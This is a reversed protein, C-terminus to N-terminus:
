CEGELSKAAVLFLSYYPWVQATPVGLYLLSGLLTPLFLGFFGATALGGWGNKGGEDGSCTWIQPPFRTFPAIPHLRIAPYSYPETNEVLNFNQILDFWATMFLSHTFFILHETGEEGQESLAPRSEEWDVDDDEKPAKRRRGGLRSSGGFRSSSSSGFRSSSEGLRSSGGTWQSAAAPQYREKPREQVRWIWYRKMKVFPCDGLGFRRNKIITWVATSGGRTKFM